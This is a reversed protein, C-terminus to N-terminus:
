KFRGAPHMTTGVYARGVDMLYTICGYSMEGDPPENTVETLLSKADIEVWPEPGRGCTNGSVVLKAIKGNHTHAVDAVRLKMTM